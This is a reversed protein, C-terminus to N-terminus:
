EFGEQFNEENKKNIITLEWGSLNPKIRGQEVLLIREMSWGHQSLQWFFLFLSLNKHQDNYKIANSSSMQCNSIAFWSTWRLAKILRIEYTVKKVKPNGHDQKALKLPYITVKM